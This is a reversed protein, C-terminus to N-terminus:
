SAESHATMKGTESVTSSLNSSIYSEIRLAVLTTLVPQAVSASLLVSM